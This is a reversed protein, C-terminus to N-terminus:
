CFNGKENLREQINNLLHEGTSGRHSTPGLIHKLKQLHVSHGYHNRGPDEWTEFM